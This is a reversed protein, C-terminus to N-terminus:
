IGKQKLYDLLTSICHTASHEIHINKFFHKILYADILADQGGIVAQIESFCITEEISKKLIYDIGWMLDELSYPLSGLLKFQINTRKYFDQLAQLPNQMLRRKMHLLQVLDIKGGLHSSQKLDLFPALLFKEVPISSVSPWHNLLIFAGLSYGIICRVCTMDYAKLEDMATFRPIIIHHHLTKWRTQVFGLLENPDM